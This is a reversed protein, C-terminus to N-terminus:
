QMYSQKDCLFANPTWASTAQFYHGGWGVVVVERKKAWCLLQVTGMGVGGIEGIEFLSCKKILDQSKMSEM